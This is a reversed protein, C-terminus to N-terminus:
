DSIDKQKNKKKEGKSSASRSAQDKKKAAEKKQQTEEKATREKPTEKSAAARTKKVPEKWKENFVIKEKAKTERTAKEFNAVFNKAGSMQKLHDALSLQEGDGIDVRTRYSQLEPGNAGKQTQFVTVACKTYPFYKGYKEAEAKLGRMQMEGQKIISDAVRPHMLAGGNVIPKDTWQECFPIEVFVGNKSIVEHLHNARECVNKVFAEPDERLLPTFTRSIYESQAIYSLQVHSLEDLAPYRKRMEQLANEPNTVFKDKLESGERVLKQFRDSMENFDHNLSGLRSKASELFDLCKTQEDLTKAKSLAEIQVKMLTIAESQASVNGKQQLLLDIAHPENKYQMIIAPLEKEVDALERSRFVAYEAYAKALTDITEKGMPENSRPTLDMNLGRTELEAKLEKTLQKCENYIVEMSKKLAEMEFGQTYHALYQFSSTSTEIGYDKGVVYAVAEAQIERMSSPIKDEGMRQALATLNGHLESHSMEHLLVSVKETPSLDSRMVIFGKPNEKDFARSYYGKAGRLEKDEEPTREHVTINNRQSVAKLAEYLVAAKGTDIEKIEAQLYPKFRAQREATNVIKYEGKRNKVPNGKEDLVMDKKEFGTKMWLHEPAAVDKADFVTGVSFYMAVKGLVSKKIFDKMQDETRIGLEKGGSRLGFLGSQNMTIEINSLGVRYVAYENNPNAKHDKILEAKIMGWLGDKSKEYATVPVFIKIGEAGKKVCQGFKKWQEFGMTYTANPRQCWVLIANNFSYNNYFMMKNTDLWNKFDDSNLIDKVGNAIEQHMAEKPDKADALANKVREQREKVQADQANEAQQPAQEQQTATVENEEAMADVEREEQKPNMGFSDNERVYTILSGPAATQLYNRVTEKLAEPTLNTNAIASNVFFECYAEIDMESMQWRANKNGAAVERDYTAQVWDKMAVASDTIAKAMEPNLTGDLMQRHMIYYLGIVPADKIAEAMEVTAGEAFFELLNDQMTYSNAGAIVRLQEQPLGNELGYRLTKMTSLPWKIDKISEVMFDIQQESLGNKQAYYIEAILLLPSRGDKVVATDQLKELYPQISLDNRHSMAVYRDYGEYLFDKDEYTGDHIVRQNAPINNAEEFHLVANFVTARDAHGISNAPIHRGPIQSGELTRGDRKFEVIPVAANPERNPDFFQQYQDLHQLTYYLDYADRRLGVTMSPDVEDDEIIERFTDIMPSYEKNALAEALHVRHEERSEADIGVDDAFGYYDYDYMFEDLREALAAIAANQNHETMKIEGRNQHDVVVDHLTREIRSWQRAVIPHRDGYDISVLEMDKGNAPDSIRYLGELEYGDAAVTFHLYGEDDFALNSIDVLPDEQEIEQLDGVLDIQQGTYREIDREIARRNEITDALNYGSGAGSLYLDGDANIGAEIDNKEDKFLVTIGRDREPEKAPEIEVMNLAYVQGVFSSFQASTMAFLKENSITNAGESVAGDEAFERLSVIVQGNEQFVSLRLDNPGDENLRVDDVLQYVGGLADIKMQALSYPANSNELAREAIFEVNRAELEMGEQHLIYAIGNLANYDEVYGNRAELWLDQATGNLGFAELHYRNAPPTYNELVNVAERIAETSYALLNPNALGEAATNDRADLETELTNQDFLGALTAVERNFQAKQDASHLEAFFNQAWGPASNIASYGLANVMAKTAEARSVIEENGFGLDRVELTPVGQLAEVINAVTGTAMGDYESAIGEIADSRSISDYSKRRDALEFIKEYNSSIDFTRDTGAQNKINIVKDAEYATIVNYLESEKRIDTQTHIKAKMQPTLWNEDLAKCGVSDIFFPHYTDVGDFLVVVDGTSPSHGYYDNPHAGRNLEAYLEEVKHLRAAEGNYNGDDNRVHILEYNNCDPSENLIRGLGDMDLFRRNHNRDNESLQLVAIMPQFDNKTPANIRHADYLHLTRTRLEDGLNNEDIMNLVAGLMESHRNVDETLNSQMPNNIYDLASIAEIPANIVTARARFHSVGTIMFQSERARLAVEEFDAYNVTNGARLFLGKDAVEYRYVGDRLEGVPEKTAEYLAMLSEEWPAREPLIPDVREAFGMARAEQRNLSIESLNDLHRDEVDFHTPESDFEYAYTGEYGTEAEKVSAMFFSDSPAQDVVRGITYDASGEQWHDTVVCVTGDITVTSRGLAAGARNVLDAYSVRQMSDDASIAAVASEYTNFVRGDIATVRGNDNIAVIRYYDQVKGYSGDKNQVDSDILDQHFSPDTYDETSEIAVNRMIKPEQQKQREVEYQRCAELVQASLTQNPEYPKNELYDVVYAQLADLADYDEYDIGVGSQRAFTSMSGASLTRAYEAAEILYYTDGRYRETPNRLENSIYDIAAKVEPNDWGAVQQFDYVVTDIGDRCHIIDLSGPLENPGHQKDMGIAKLQEAPLARYAEIAADIDRYYEVDLAGRKQLDQVVYYRAIFFLNGKINPDEKGEWNPYQFAAGSGPVNIDIGFRKEKNLALGYQSALIEKIGAYERYDDERFTERAVMEQQTLVWGETADLFSFMKPNESIAILSNDANNYTGANDYNERKGLYISEGEAMVVYGDVAAISASQVKLLNQDAVEEEEEAELRPPREDYINENGRIVSVVGEALDKPERDYRIRDHQWSGRSHNIANLLKIGRGPPHWDVLNKTYDDLLFDTNKVGGVIWDKKDSGCPGFIRHEADIEPLYKDLWANKEQLAYQSDSLVASLINVEVEPHNQIIERVAEVVNEHPTLNLFYGEQYLTELEDVAQFVALTGDMDVFLRQRENEM